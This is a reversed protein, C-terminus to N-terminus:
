ACPEVPAGHLREGVASRDHAAPMTGRLPVGRGCATASDVLDVVREPDGPAHM